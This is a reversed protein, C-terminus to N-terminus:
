ASRPANAGRGGEKRAGQDALQRRARERAYQLEGGDDVLVVVVNALQEVEVAEDREDAKVRGDGFTRRWRKGCRVGSVRM